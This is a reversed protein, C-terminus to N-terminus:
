ADCAADMEAESVAAVTVPLRRFAEDFHQTLDARAAAREQLRARLLPDAMSTVDGDGAGAADRGQAPSNGGGTGAPSGSRSGGASAGAAKAAPRSLLITPSDPTAHTGQPGLPAPVKRAEVAEWDLGAFFPHQKIADVGRVKFGKSTGGGLRREVSKELLGRVLSRCEVSVHSPLPVKDHLIKSYLRQESKARFPPRGTLLEILLCGLAWWDVARSYGESKGRHTLIM